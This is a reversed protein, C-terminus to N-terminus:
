GHTITVTITDTYVGAQFFDASGFSLSLAYGTGAKPTRTQATSVQNTAATGDGLSKNVILSGLTVTYPITETTTGLKLVGANASSLGITWDKVNSIVTVTGLAWTETAKSNDLTYSLTGTPVTLTFAEPVTASLSLSGTQPSTAFAVGFVAVAFLAVLVYKKM